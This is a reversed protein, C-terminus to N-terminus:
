FFTWQPPLSQTPLHRRIPIYLRWRWRDVGTQRESNAALWGRLWFPRRCCVSLVSTQRCTCNKQSPNLSCLNLLRIRKPFLGAFESGALTNLPETDQLLSSETLLRICLLLLTKLETLRDGIPLGQAAFVTLQQRDLGCHFAQHERRSFHICAAM